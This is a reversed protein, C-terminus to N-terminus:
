ELLPHTVQARDFSAHSRQRSVHTMLTLMGPADGENIGLHSCHGIHNCILEVFAAGSAGDLDQGHLNHIRIEVPLSRSRTLFTSLRHIEEEPYQGEITDLDLDDEDVWKICWTKTWLRPLALAITRWYSCVHSVSCAFTWDPGDLHDNTGVEFIMGLIDNHLTSILANENATRALLAKKLVKDEIRRSRRM